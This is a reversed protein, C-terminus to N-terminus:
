RNRAIGEANLRVDSGPYLALIVARPDRTEIEGGFEPRVGGGRIARSQSGRRSLVKAGRHRRESWGQFSKQEGCIIIYM